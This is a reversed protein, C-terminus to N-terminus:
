PTNAIGTLVGNKSTFGLFYAGGAGDLELDSASSNTATNGTFNGSSDFNLTDTSKVEEDSFAFPGGGTSSLDYIDEQDSSTTQSESGDANVQVGIDMTFPYSLHSTSVTTATSTKTTTTTDVTTSQSIDQVYVTNSLTFNQQSLFNVQQAVSTTVKGHSTNVYGSITFTRQSAVAVTATGSGNADLNLKETVTPKPAAALTDSVLAGSVFDKGHDTYALLNATALFYSNANFVSLAVTHAAGNSLLGAFPTLDVRYPKFNLTQVGPLPGWLFPDIGGTYVWPYVPAVGAPIGDISIETERFASNGCSELPGTVDNPVCTYWFEDSSQSQAIVDLYVREVNTPLTVKQSLLSATTGLAAAGGDKDPMPVVADPVTAAPDKSSTPYFQLDMDAWIVGTYTSDVLNGILAQGTQPANLIASLDTIDRETHWSPGFTQGPEATTGYFINAHGLFVEATRDYQVGDTVTIDATFVVKAWPGPCESPPAYHLTIPAFGAFRQNNTLKVVCPTTSPRPVSPEASVPNPSGIKPGHTLRVGSQASAHALSLLLVAPAILNRAAALSITQSM